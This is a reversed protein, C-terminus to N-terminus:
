GTGENRQMGLSLVRLLVSEDAFGSSVLRFMLHRYTDSSHRSTLGDDGVGVGDETDRSFQLAPM